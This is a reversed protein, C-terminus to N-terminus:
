SVGSVLGSLRAPWVRKLRLAKETYAILGQTQFFTQSALSYICSIRIDIINPVLWPQLAARAIELLYELQLKATRVDHYLTPFHEMKRLNSEM